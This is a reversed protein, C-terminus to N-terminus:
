ASPQVINRVVGNMIAIWITLARIPATVPRPERGIQALRHGRTISWPMTPSKSMALVSLMAASMAAIPSPAQPQDDAARHQDVDGSNPM